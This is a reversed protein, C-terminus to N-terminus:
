GNELSMVHRDVPTKVRTSHVTYGNHNKVSLIFVDELFPGHYLSTVGAMVVSTEVTALGLDTHAGPCLVRLIAPSREYFVDVDM